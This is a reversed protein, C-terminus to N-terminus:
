WSVIWIEVLMGCFVLCSEVMQGGLGNALLPEIELALSKWETKFNM